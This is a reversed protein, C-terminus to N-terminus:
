IARALWEQLDRTDQLLYRAMTEGQGVKISVGGLANVTAFGSEDTLDDGAFVSTRGSFAPNLMFAMIAEGKNAGVPRIERVMKGKQICLQGEYASVIADATAEVIPELAPDARYHVAISLGKYEAILHPHRATLREIEPTIAKIIGAAEADAGCRVSGDPLRLELGHQGAAPFRYLGCLADLSVLSRGTVLAVAGGNSELARLSLLTAPPIFAQAPTPALPALTGDVDFFYAWERRPAPPRLDHRDCSPFSRSNENLAPHM